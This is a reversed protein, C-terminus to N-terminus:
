AISISTHGSVRALTWADSGSEGLGTLRTHRLSYLVFPRVGALVTAVAKLLPCAVALYRSEEEASVVGKVAANVVVSLSLRASSRCRIVLWGSCYSFTRVFVTVSVLSLGFSANAPAAHRM